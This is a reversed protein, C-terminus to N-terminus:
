LSPNPGAKESVYKLILDRMQMPRPMGDMVFEETEGATQVRITGIDLMSPLVGEVDTTVDQVRNLLLSSVERNFYGRQKIDVIRRDTLVWTNLYYRTFAGWAGTWIVLLWVGLAARALPDAISLFPAYPATSADLMLLNPIAFPFVFLIAYPLLEAAFLFWHKRTEKVVHEGPELDFEPM